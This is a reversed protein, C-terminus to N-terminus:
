NALKGSMFNSIAGPDLLGYVAESNVALEFVQHCNPPSPGRDGEGVVDVSTRKVKKAIIKQLEKKM